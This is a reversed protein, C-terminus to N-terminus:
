SLLDCKVFKGPAGFENKLHVDTIHATRLIPKGKVVNPRTFTLSHALLIGGINKIASGREM